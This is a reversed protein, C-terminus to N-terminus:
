FLIHVIEQPTCHLGNHLPKLLFHSLLFLFLNINSPVVNCWKLLPQQCLYKLKNHIVGCIILHEIQM